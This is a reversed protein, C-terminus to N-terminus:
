RTEKPCGTERIHKAYAAYRTAADETQNVRESLSIRLPAPLQDWTRLVEHRKGPVPGEVYQECAYAFALLEKRYPTQESQNRAM